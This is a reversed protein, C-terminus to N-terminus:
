FFYQNPNAAPNTDTNNSAGHNWLTFDHGAIEHIGWAAAAGGLVPLAGVLAGLGLAKKRKTQETTVDEEHWKALYDQGNALVDSPSARYQDLDETLAQKDTDTYEDAGRKGHEYNAYTKAGRAVAALGGGIVAGAAGATLVGAAGVALGVGIGKIVRAKKSGKNLWGGFKEVFRGVPTGNLNEATQDRLKKQEDFLFSIINTNLTQKEANTMDNQRALDDAFEHRGMEQVAANCRDKASEYVEGGKGSVRGQRKASVTAM